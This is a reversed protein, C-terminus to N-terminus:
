NRIYKMKRITESKSLPVTVDVAQGGKVFVHLKIKSANMGKIQALDYSKRGILIRKDGAIVIRNLHLVNLLLALVLIGLLFGQAKEADALLAILTVALGADLEIYSLLDFSLRVNKDSKAFKLIVYARYLFLAATAVKLILILPYM